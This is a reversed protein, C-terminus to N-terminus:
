LRQSVRLEAHYTIWFSLVWVVPSREGLRPIPPRNSSSELGFVLVCRRSAAHNSFRRLFEGPIGGYETKALDRNFVANAGCGNCHLFSFVSRSSIFMQGDPAMVMYYYQKGREFRTRNLARQEFSLTHEGPQLELAFVAPATMHAFVVGDCLVDGTKVNGNETFFIALPPANPDAADEPHGTEMSCGALLGLLLAVTIRWYMSANVNLM